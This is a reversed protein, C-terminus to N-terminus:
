FPVDDTVEETMGKPANEILSALAKEAAQALPLKAQVTPEKKDGGFVGADRLLRHFHSWMPDSPFIDGCLMGKASFQKVFKALDSKDIRVGSIGGITKNVFVMGEGMFKHCTECNHNYHKGEEDIKAKGGCVTKYGLHIYPGKEPVFNINVTFLLGSHCEQAAQPSDTKQYQGSPM